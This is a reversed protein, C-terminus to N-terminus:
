SGISFSDILSKIGDDVEIADKLGLNGSFHYYFYAGSNTKSVHRCGRYIERAIEDVFCEFIMIRGDIVRRYFEKRASEPGIEYLDFGYMGKKPYPKIFMDRLNEFGSEPVTFSNVMEVDYVRCRPKATKLMCAKTEPSFPKLSPIVMRLSVNKQPGGAWNDMSYIYNRPIRYRAGAMEFEIPTTEMSMSDEFLAACSSSSFALSAMAACLVSLVRFSRQGDDSVRSPMPTDKGIKMSPMRMSNEIRRSLGPLLAGSLHRRVRAGIPLAAGADAYATAM